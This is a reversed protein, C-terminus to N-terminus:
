LGLVRALEKKMRRRRRKYSRLFGKMDNPVDALFNRRLWQKKEDESFDDLWEAPMKDSKEQNPIGELLQLNPVRDARDLVGEIHEDSLGERCLEERVFIAKPFIHDMHIHNAFDVSPYLLALVSFTQRDGYRLELVRKLDNKQFSSLRRDLSKAPFHIAKGRKKQREIAARIASRAGRLTTDSNGSFTNDLLARAIWTRIATRDKKFGRTEIINVPNGIKMIYYAIPVIANYSTLKDSNYGFRSVLTFALKLAKSTAPWLKEIKSTNHRTFNSVKYGIDRIDSLVLCSKLVHDKNVKFREGIQNLNDVLRHVEDRADLSTWQATAVSLLLDSYDLPTGASNVRIFINLVKEIDQGEEQYYNILPDRCIVDWLKMLCNVPYDDNNNDLKRERVYNSIDIPGEFDLVDCVRFWHPAVEEKTLFRFDYKLDVDDGKKELNLYLRRIPYADSSNRRKYKKKQAYSGRLGIYLSTLRQQGDLIATVGVDGTTDFYTNHRNEQEHYHDLFRYFKYKRCGHQEVNWFLFSGIPYGRMLSDFLRAIQAPKWIFERQIAPLVFKNRRISEVARKITIPTQYAM